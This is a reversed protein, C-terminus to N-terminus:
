SNTKLSSANLARALLSADTRAPPTGEAKRKAIQALRQELQAQEQLVHKEERERKTRERQENDAAVVDEDLMDAASLYARVWPFRSADKVCLPRLEAFGCPVLDDDTERGIGSFQLLPLHQQCEDCRFTQEERVQYNFRNRCRTSCFKAGSSRSAPNFWRGDFLCRRLRFDRSQARGLMAVCPAAWEAALALKWTDEDNAWDVFKLEFVGGPASRTLPRMSYRVECYLGDLVREVAELSKPNFPESLAISTALDLLLLALTTGAHPEPQAVDELADNLAQEFDATLEFWVPVRSAAM